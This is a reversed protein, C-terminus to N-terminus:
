AAVQQILTAFPNIRGARVSERLRRVRDNESHTRKAPKPADKADGLAWRAAIHPAIGSWGDIHFRKRNNRIVFNVAGVTTGIRLAIAKSTLSGDDSLTTEVARLVWSYGTRGATGAKKGAIGLRIAEARASNYNRKPLLEAVQCKISRKSRYISKLTDIENASWDDVSALRIHLKAAHAKAADYTRGPLLNMNAALPLRNRSIRRLAFEEEATWLRGGM